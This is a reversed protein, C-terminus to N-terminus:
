HIHNNLACPLLQPKQAQDEASGSCLFNLSKFRYSKEAGREREPTPIVISLPRRQLIM